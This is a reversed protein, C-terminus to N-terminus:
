AQEILEIQSDSDFVPILNILFHIYQVDRGRVKELHESATYKAAVSYHSRQQNCPSSRKTSSTFTARSSRAANPKMM